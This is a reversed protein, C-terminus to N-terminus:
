LGKCYLSKEDFRRSDEGTSDEPANQGTFQNAVQRIIKRTAGGRNQRSSGADKLNVTQRALGDGDCQNNGGTRMYGYFVVPSEGVACTLCQTHQDIVRRGLSATAM